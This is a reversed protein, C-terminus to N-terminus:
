RWIVTIGSPSSTSSNIPQAESEGDFILWLREKGSMEKAAKIEVCARIFPPRRAIIILPSYSLIIGM